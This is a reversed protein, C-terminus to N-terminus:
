YLSLELPTHTYGGGWKLNRSSLLKSIYLVFLSGAIGGIYFLACSNGFQVTNIDVRGNLVYSLITLILLSIVYFWYRDIKTTTVNSNLITPKLIQGICVFTMGMLASDVPVLTDIGISSMFMLLAISVVCITALSVLNFCKYIVSLIMRCIFLAILFWCPVCVPSLGAKDYGLGLAIAGVMSCLSHLTISGDLARHIAVNALCLANIILYPILLSDWDKKITALPSIPKYLLGSLFFFLPMHFTYIFDRVMANASDGFVINVHGWIVLFIGIVKAIDVWQYYTKEKGM